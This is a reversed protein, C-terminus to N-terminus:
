AAQLYEHIVGGLRDRRIVATPAKPPPSTADPPQQHLSRHPRHANYHDVYDTLVAALHREGTILLHDLCERRITGVWREAYANAVPARVPARLITINEANFEADFAATFKTDRDRILYRVPSARHDLDILLNRAQQTVWAGTPHRTVGALHVRRRDLELFFLVYLRTLWVTDVTFLRCLGSGAAGSGRGCGFDWTLVWSRIDPVWLGVPEV